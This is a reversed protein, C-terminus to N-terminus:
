VQVEQITSISEKKLSVFQGKIDRLDLSHEDASIVEGVFYYNNLLIIKVKRGIFKLLDM